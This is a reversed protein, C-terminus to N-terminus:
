GSERRESRKLMVLSEVTEWVGSVVEPGKYKINERGSFSKQRIDVCTM